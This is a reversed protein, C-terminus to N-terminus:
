ILVDSKEKKTPGIELEFQIAKIKFIEGVPNRISMKSQSSMLIKTGNSGNISSIYGNEFCNLSGEEFIILGEPM